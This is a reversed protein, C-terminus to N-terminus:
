EFNRVLVIDRTKLGRSVILQADDDGLWDYHYILDETFNTIQQAETGDLPQRWINHVGDRKELFTLAAGDASWRLIQNYPNPLALTAVLAGDDISLVAIQWRAAEDSRYVCAIRTGDPSVVPKICLSEHTLQQPVGAETLVTWLSNRANSQSTYVVLRGDRTISPFSEGGNDTLRRKQGGEADMCWIHHAGGQASVYAICSGDRSFAPLFGGGTTLRRRDSGDANVSWLDPQQHETLAFVIRGRSVSLGHFGETRGNTIRRAPPAGSVTGDSGVAQSHLATALWLSARVETQMTVLTQSEAALSLEEYNNPDNTIRKAQQDPYRLRWIQFSNENAAMASFYLGPSEASGSWAVACMTKWEWRSVEILKGGALPVGLIACELGNYRSAGLAILQGDPSWSATAFSFKDPHERSAIEREETGDAGAVILADRHQGPFSRVFAIQKGDPSLAIGADINVVLKQAPGGGMLVRYLVSITSNPQTTIFFLTQGDPSFRLGWCLAPDPASLTWREGSELRQIWLSQKGNEILVFALLRASPSIAVDMIYGDHTLRTIQMGEFPDRQPSRNGVFSVAAVFRYGRKAVTEIFQNGNETEGLAKRAMSIAVTLNSEEVFADRWLHEIMEKRSVVRGGNQILLILAQISKPTLPVIEGNRRLVLETSDLEFKGFQYKGGFASM